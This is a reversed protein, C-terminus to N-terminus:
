LLDSRHKGWALLIDPMDANMANEERTKNDDIAGQTEAIKHCPTISSCCVAPPTCLRMCLIPSHLNLAQRVQFSAMAAKICTTMATSLLESAKLGGKSKDSLFAHVQSAMDAGFAAGHQEEVALFRGYGVEYVAHSAICPDVECAQWHWVKLDTVRSKGRSSELDKREVPLPHFCNQHVVSGRHKERGTGGGKRGAGGALPACCGVV